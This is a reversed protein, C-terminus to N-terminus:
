RRRAAFGVMALGALLATAPEPIEPRVPVSFYQLGEFQNFNIGALNGTFNGGGDGGLNGTMDIGGPLGGLVQNSHFNNDGNGYVAHILIESGVAPSGIDALAVSFELGTTM